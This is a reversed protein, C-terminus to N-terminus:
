FDYQAGLQLRRADASVCTSKGFDPNATRVGNVNTFAVDNFCGFNNFNFVNFVDATIGIKQGRMAYLEKRLRMDVNRYAFANPIIFSYKPPEGGGRNFVPQPGSVDQAALRNGSGLTILSSAQIGWAWPVDVIGNAVIRHRESNGIEYRSFGFATVRPFSFLDVGESEAKALTYAVGAGWGANESSRRYPRDLTFFMANYWARVSNNAVLVNRYAPVNKSVCCGGDPNLDFNAWEFSLGNTSRTGTYTVSANVTGFDHRVGINFQNSKPPKLNNPLLFVETPPAQGSNLAAVLGARSFYKPDWALVGPAAVAAFQFEYNPHQRNFTEDILSNFTQRDYFIGVGGFVTTRQAEDV